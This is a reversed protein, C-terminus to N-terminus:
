TFALDEYLDTMRLTVGIAPLAITEDLGAIRSIEWEAGAEARAYLVASPRQTGIFLISALTPHRRYEELKVIQDVDSTSPSLVELVLKPERAESTDRVLEGCEVTVDPRRITRISTRLAIDDTTPRCRTGRLQQVLTAIANVVVQDHQASAGTMMVPLGDVLEYLEEQGQQWRFFEEVTMPRPATEAM